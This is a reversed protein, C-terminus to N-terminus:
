RNIISLGSRYVNPAVEKSWKVTANKAGKWLGKCHIKLRYGKKIPKATFISLGSRSINLVTGETNPLNNHTAYSWFVDGIVQNRDEKRKEKAKEKPKVTKM